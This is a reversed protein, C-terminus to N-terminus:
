YGFALSVLGVDGADAGAELDVSFFSWSYFAFFGTSAELFAAGDAGFAGSAAM